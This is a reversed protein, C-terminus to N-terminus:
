ILTILLMLLAAALLIEASAGICLLYIVLCIGVALGIITTAFSLKKNNRRTIIEAVRCAIVAALLFIVPVIHEIIISM